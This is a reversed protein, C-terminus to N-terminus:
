SPDRISPKPAKYINPDDKISKQFGPAFQVQDAGPTMKCGYIYITTIYTKIFNITKM